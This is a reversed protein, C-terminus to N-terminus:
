YFVGYVAISYARGESRAKLSSSRLSEGVHIDHTLYGVKGTGRDYPILVNGPFYYAFIDGPEVSVPVNLDIALRGAQAVSLEKSEWVVYYRDGVQRLARLFFSGPLNFHGAIGNVMGAKKVPNATDVLLINKDRLEARPILEYGIYDALSSRQMFVRYGEMQMKVFNRVEGRLGTSEEAREVKEKNVIRNLRELEVVDGELEKKRQTLATVTNRCQGLQRTLNLNDQKLKDPGGTSVCGTLLLLVVVLARALVMLSLSM